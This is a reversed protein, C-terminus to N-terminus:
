LDFEVRLQRLIRTECLQQIPLVQPAGDALHIRQTPFLRIDPLTGRRMQPMGRLPLTGNKLSVLHQLLPNQQLRM